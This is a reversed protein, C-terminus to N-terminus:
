KNGAGHKNAKPAWLSWKHTSPLVARFPLLPLMLGQKTGIAASRGMQNWFGQGATDPAAEKSPDEKEVKKVAAQQNAPSTVAAQQNAPSTVAAQQNAPSMKTTTVSPAARPGAAAANPPAVHTGYGKGDPCWVAPATTSM